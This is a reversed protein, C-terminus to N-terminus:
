EMAEKSKPNRKELYNDAITTFLFAWTTAVTWILMGEIEWSLGIFLALSILSGIWTAMLNNNVEM